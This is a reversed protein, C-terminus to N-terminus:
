KIKHLREQRTQVSLRFVEWGEVAQQYIEKM